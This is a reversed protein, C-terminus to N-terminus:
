LETTHASKAVDAQIELTGSTVKVEKPGPLGRGPFLGDKTGLTPGPTTVFLYDFLSRAQDRSEDAALKDFLRQPIRNRAM